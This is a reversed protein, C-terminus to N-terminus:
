QLSFIPLSLSHDDIHDHMHGAPVTVYACPFHESAVSVPTNTVADVLQIDLQIYFPPM